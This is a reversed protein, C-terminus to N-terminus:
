HLIFSREGQKLVRERWEDMHEKKLRGRLTNNITAWMTLYNIEDGSDMGFDDWADLEVGLSWIFSDRSGMRPLMNKNCLIEYIAWRENLSNNKDSIYVLCQDKITDLSNFILQLHTKIHDSFTSM